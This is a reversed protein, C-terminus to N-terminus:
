LGTQTLCWIFSDCRVAASEGAKRGSKIKRRIVLTPIVVNKTYAFSIVVAIWFIHLLLRCNM